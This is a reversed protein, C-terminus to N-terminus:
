EYTDELEAPAAPFLALQLAIVTLYILFHIVFVLGKVRSSIM